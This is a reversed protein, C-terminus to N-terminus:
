GTFKNVQIPQYTINVEEWNYPNRRKGWANYSYENVINGNEDILAMISGQFDYQFYYFNDAYTNVDHVQVGFIGNPGMVYNYEINSSKSHDIINEFLGVYYKEKKLIGKGFQLSAHTKIDPYTNMDMEKITTPGFIENPYEYLEYYNRNGNVDCETNMQYHGEMLSVPKNYANYVINQEAFCKDFELCAARTACCDGSIRKVANPQIPQNGYFYDGWDSKLKINGNAEYDMFMKRTGHFDKIETLRDLDDYVFSETLGKVNDVRQIVNGRIPDLVVGINYFVEYSPLGGIPSILKTASQQVQENCTTYSTTSEVGGNMSNPAWKVSRERGMADEEILQYLVKSGDGVAIIQGTKDYSNYVHYGSPYIIEALNGNSPDYINKTEFLKGKITELTSELEGNATYKYETSTGFSSM